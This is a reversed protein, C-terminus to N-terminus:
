GCLGCCSSRFWEVGPPEGREPCHHSSDDSRASGGPRVERGAGEALGARGLEARVVRRLRVGPEDAVAIVNREGYKDFTATDASLDRSRNRPREEPKEASEPRRRRGTSEIIGDTISRRPRTFRTRRRRAWRM